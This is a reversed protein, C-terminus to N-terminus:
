KSVFVKKTEVVTYEEDEIEGNQLMYIFENRIDDCLKDFRQVLEVEKKIEYMSADEWESPDDTGVSRGPYTDWRYLQRDYNIRKAGCVGCKDNGETAVQFNRQGCKPCYSKHDDPVRKTEYMVLYGGSRGNFGVTYGTDERFEYILDDIIFSLDSEVDNCVFDWAKDEIEKPLQLNYLKVNNAYSTSRNWSNMTDYRFHETLFRIMDNRNRKDVKSQFINM